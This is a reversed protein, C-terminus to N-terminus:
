LKEKEMSEFRILCEAWEDPTNTNDFSALNDETLEAFNLQRVLKYLSRGKKEKSSVLSQYLYNLLPQDIKILMPFTANQHYAGSINQTSLAVLPRLEKEAIYPMDVPLVLMYDMQNFLQKACSYIGGIPGLSQFEDSICSFGTYDGSVNVDELGIQNLLDCSRQLLTQGKLSLLAKNEGMRSSLGGALVVGAIKM